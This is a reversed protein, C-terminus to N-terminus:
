LHLESKMIILHHLLFFLLGSTPSVRRTEPGGADSRAGGRRHTDVHYRRRRDVDYRRRRGDAPGGADRRPQATPRDRQAARRAGPPDLPDARGFRLRCGFRSSPLSGFITTTQTMKVCVRYTEIKRM